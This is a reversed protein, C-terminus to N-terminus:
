NNVNVEVTVMGFNGEYGRLNATIYHSGNNAKTTDWVWTFPLFGVENEFTFAGDIFFVPEFRRDLIRQKDKANVQMRVPVQGSLQPIGNKLKTNKPLELYIEVDGRGEMAQQSHFHMRKPQTQTVVRRQQPWSMTKLWQATKPSAGLLIVNRGLSFGDVIIKLKPHSSLDMAQSKDWGDWPEQNLGAPRPVWDIVTKLLPGFNQLGIRINVRAAEPLRYRLVKEEADWSIDTITVDAGWSSDTLDHIVAEGTAAKAALTYRYAEAPLLKGAQDKGAWQFSHAGAALEAQSAIQRVLLDRGDYIQLSVQAPASLQYHVNILEGNAPEFSQKDLRVQTIELAQASSAPVLLLLGLLSGFLLGMFRLM